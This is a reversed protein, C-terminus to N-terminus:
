SFSGCNGLIILPFAWRECLARNAPNDVVKHIGSIRLRVDFCILNFIAYAPVFINEHIRSDLQRWLHYITDGWAIRKTISHFSKGKTAIVWLFENEWNGPM